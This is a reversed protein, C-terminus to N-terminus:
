QKGYKKEIELTESGSGCRRNEALLAYTANATAVLKGTDKSTAEMYLRIFRRTKSLVKTKVLVTDGGEVM